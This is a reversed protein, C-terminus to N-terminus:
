SAVAARRWEARAVAASTVAVLALSVVITWELAGTGHDPDVGFVAEIWEQDILTVVLLVLSGTASATEAWFRGRVRRGAAM